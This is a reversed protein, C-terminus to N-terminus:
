ATASIEVKDPYFALRGAIGAMAPYPTEYTWVANEAAAGDAAVSFYAAEGKYPCFTSKDTRSLLAMDADERPLYYVPKYHAERLVLARDSTAVVAGGLRVTVREPAPEITIPHDPGPVKMERM